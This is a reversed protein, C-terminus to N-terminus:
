KWAGVVISFTDSEKPVLKGLMVEEFFTYACTRGLLRRLHRSIGTYVHTMTNRAGSSSCIRDEM